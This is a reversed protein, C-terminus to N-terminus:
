SSRTSRRASRNPRPSTGTPSAGNTSNPLGSQVARLMRAGLMGAVTQSAVLMQGVMGTADGLPFANGVMQTLAARLQQPDANETLWERGGLQATRDYATILDLLGDMTIQAITTFGKDPDIVSSPTQEDLLKAWEAIQAIKLTPVAKTTGGVQIELLGSLVQEPTREPM